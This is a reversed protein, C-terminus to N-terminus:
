LLNEVHNKSQHLLQIFDDEEQPSVELVVDIDSDKVQEIWLRHDIRDQVLSGHAKGQFGLPLHEGIVPSKTKPNFFYNNYDSGCIHVHKIYPKLQTLADNMFSHCQEHLNHISVYDKLELEFQQEVEKQTRKGSAVDLIHSKYKQYFPKMVATICFHEVDVTLGLPVKVEKIMALYDEPNVFLPENTYAQNIWICVNEICLLVTPDYVRELRRALVAIAEQKSRTTLDINPPHFVVKPIENRKACQVARRLMAESKDGLEGDDALNITRGDELKYLFHIAVVNKYEREFDQAKRIYLEFPSFGAETFQALKDADGKFVLRM